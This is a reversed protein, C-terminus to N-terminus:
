VTQLLYLLYLRCTSPRCLSILLKSNNIPRLSLLFSSINFYHVRVYLTTTVYVVFRVVLIKIYKSLLMYVLYELLICCTM